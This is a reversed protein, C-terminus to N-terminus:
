GLWRGIQNRTPSSDVPSVIIDIAIKICLVSVTSDIVM